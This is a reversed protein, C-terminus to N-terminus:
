IILQTTEYIPLHDYFDRGHGTCQLQCDNFFAVSMAPIYSYCKRRSDHIPFPFHPLAYGYVLAQLSSWCVLMLWGLLLPTFM